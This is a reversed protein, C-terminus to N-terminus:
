NKPVHTYQGPGPTGGGKKKSDRISRGFGVANEKDVGGTVNYMGPGPGSNNIPMSRGTATGFGKNQSRNM